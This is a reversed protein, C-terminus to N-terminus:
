QHYVFDYVSFLLGSVLCLNRLAMCYGIDVPESIKRYKLWSGQKTVYRSLIGGLIARICVSM